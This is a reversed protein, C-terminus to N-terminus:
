RKTITVEAGISIGDRSITGAPLELVQDIAVSSRYITPIGFTFPPAGEFVDVVRGDRMWVFDISFKMGKMWFPYVDPKAFTFLMGHGPRLSPRGSLGQAQQSSGVALEALYTHGNIVVEAGVPREFNLSRITSFIFMVLFLSAILGVGFLVIKWIAQM